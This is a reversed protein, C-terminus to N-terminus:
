SEEERVWVNRVVDRGLIDRAIIYRMINQAGEAGITYSFTGLWGRYIPCEKTYGYAGFWKLVEEYIKTAVEPGKLKAMAVIVNLDQPKFKPSKTLYTNDVMWAAKYVFYRAAELETYLEAFKFSVGEFSAIPRGQFLKRNRLWEKAQDLAWRASGVTAAAVLVRAINFGQLVLYFGQNVEGIRYKDEVEFDELVFGGTSIGHRGIEEYITPKWGPKVKGNWKPLVAFATIRKHSWVPKETKAILFFGGGEPLEQIERIGSIYAKEGNLVWVDGKRRAVTKIGAVDSGGQPETSAIGFFADGKAVKPIIEQKAEEQGFLALALPWGNNLLTYVAVAVAPDHYAIEEVAIAAMVMTGGMGGYEEPVPIAFLGQEGLKKILDLPIRGKEDIEIWRPEIYRKAFEQVSERFRIEDESFEFNVM